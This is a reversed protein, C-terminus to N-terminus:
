ILQANTIIEYQSMLSRFAGFHSFLVMLQSLLQIVVFLKRHYSGKIEHVFLCSFVIVWGSCVCVCKWTDVEVVFLFLCVWVGLCLRENFVWQALSQRCDVIFM